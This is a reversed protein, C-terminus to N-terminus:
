YNVPNKGYYEECRSILLDLLEQAAATYKQRHRCVYGATVKVNCNRIPITRIGLAAYDEASLGPGFRFADTHLLTSIIAGTDNVHIVRKIRNLSIEDITLFFTLNSFYDDPMRVCAYDMLELMEVEDREYLPHCPGINAYWTDTGLPHFELKKMRLTHQVEKKQKENFMLFGIEATGNEVMEMAQMTRCEIMKLHVYPEKHRNYFETFWKGMTIIPYTALTLNEPVERAQTGLKQIMDTREMIAKAYEYLKRGEETMQVGNKSRVFVHIGLEAELNAIAKSLSPQTLYLKEAAKNLSGADAIAIFYELQQLQM